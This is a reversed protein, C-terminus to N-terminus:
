FDELTKKSLVSEPRTKLIDKTTDATQDNKKILLWQNKRQTKILAFGGQLKTGNLVISIHGNNYATEIPVDKNNKQTKNEFTGKDWILVMGAGYNDEPIVGEFEAYDIPHDETEVALRKEKPNLSPGKPIAWSKLVGNIELRFDYHLRGADHKQIVFINQKSEITTEMPEPTKRFNRKKKYDELSM